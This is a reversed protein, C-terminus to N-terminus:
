EKENPISVDLAFVSFVNRLLDERSHFYSGPYNFLPTSDKKLTENRFISQYEYGLSKNTIIKPTTRWSGQSAAPDWSTQKELWSTLTKSSSEFFKVM